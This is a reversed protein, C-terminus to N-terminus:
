YQFPYTFSFDISKNLVSDISVAVNLRYLSIFGTNYQLKGIATEGDIMVNFFIDEKLLGSNYKIPLTGIVLLAMKDKASSINLKGYHYCKGWKCLM